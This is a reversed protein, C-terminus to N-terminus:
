GRSGLTIRRDHGTAGLPGQQFQVRDTVGALEFVRQVPRSGPILAVEVGRRKCLGSRFAVVAVGTPDIYTLQSLDLTLGCIGAECLREIEAELTPASARDLEGTLVLTHTAGPQVQV